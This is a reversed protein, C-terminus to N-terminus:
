AEDDPPIFQSQSMSARAHSSLYEYARAYDRMAIAEAFLRAADFYPREAATVDGDLAEKSSTPGSNDQKCASLAFAAGVMFLFLRSVALTQFLRKSPMTGM